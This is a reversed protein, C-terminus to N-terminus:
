FGKKQGDWPPEKGEKFEDVGPGGLDNLRWIGYIYSITLVVIIAPWGLLINVWALNLVAESFFLRLQITLRLAFYVAWLITVERYAPKVDQRWFWELPWGRSLHSAWAALPKGILVTIVSALLFLTSSTLAPIFYNSANNSLYAFSSAFIVGILGALSYKWNEKKIIRRSFNILATTVALIVATQLGFISNSVAYILPPLLADFTKNLFISHLEELIDEKKFEM